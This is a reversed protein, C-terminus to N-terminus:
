KKLNNKKFEDYSKSGKRGNCKRCAVVWNSQDLKNIGSSVPEVHDVTALKPNKNNLNCMRLSRYGVELHPKGCYHCILDGNKRKVKLLFVYRKNLYEQLEQLERLFDEDNERLYDNLLILASLSQSSVDENYIVHNFKTTGTASRYYTITKM